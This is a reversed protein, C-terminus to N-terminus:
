SLPGVNMQTYWGASLVGDKVYVTGDGRLVGIRNADLALKVVNTQENAWAANLAGDKVWAVGDNALVGIRDGALVLQKGGARENVWSASLTGEKVWAIGDTALAGIRNGSLALQTVGSKENAWATNLAGEKVYAVGGTTLVGVRTTTLAIQKIGTHQTSWAANLAGEKVLANGSTTLVGIRDGALALQKVGTYEKAWPASLSGDKVYATGDATLVGIRDGALVLQKVGPYEKAWGGTASVSGDKVYATGDTHLVGIRTGSLAPGAWSKKDKARAEDQGKLLFTQLSLLTGTTLAQDAAAVLDPLWSDLVAADRIATVQAKYGALEKAAAAAEDKGNATAGGTFIFDSLATELDTANVAAQAALKVETGKANNLVHLVYQRNPANVLEETVPLLLLQLLSRKAAALQEAKLEAAEEATADELKKKVDLDEAAAAGTTLFATWETRTGKIAQEAAAKVFSGAEAREWVEIIFNLDTLEILATEAPDLGVIVAVSRRLAKAREAAIEAQADDAAAAFVGATIFQYAAQPDSDDYARLAAGQVFTDPKAQRWLSLVFAQDDLVLMDIGPNLGLAAAAKVKDEDTALNTPDAVISAAATTAPEAAAAPAALATSWVATATVGAILLHAAARMNKSM